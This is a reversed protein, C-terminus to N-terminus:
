REEAVLGAAVARPVQRPEDIFDAGRVEDGEGFAVGLADSVGAAVGLLVVEIDPEARLDDLRPDRPIAVPAHSIVEIEVAVDHREGPVVGHGIEIRVLDHQHIVAAKGLPNKQHLTSGTSDNPENENAPDTTTGGLRGHGRATTGSCDHLSVT